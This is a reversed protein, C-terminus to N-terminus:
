VVRWSGEELVVRGEDLLKKLHALVSDEAAPLLAPPLFGYVASTIAAPTVQGGGLAALIQADRTERHAVYEAIEVKDIRPFRGERTFARLLTQREDDSLEPVDGTAVPPYDSFDVDVLEISFARDLVKPSFAHTTEDINVTGVVYLNTPLRM